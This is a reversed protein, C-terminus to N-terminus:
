RFEPVPPPTYDEPPLPGAGCLADGCDTTCVCPANQGSPSSCLACGTTRFPKTAM